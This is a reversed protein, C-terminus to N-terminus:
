GMHTKKGQLSCSFVPYKSGYNQTEYEIGFVKKLKNPKIPPWTMPLKSKSIVIERHDGGLYTHAESHMSIMSGLSLAEMLILEDKTDQQCLKEELYLDM